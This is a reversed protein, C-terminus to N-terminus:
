LDYSIQRVAEIADDFFSRKQELIRTLRELDRKVTEKGALATLAKIKPEFEKVLVALTAARQLADFMNDSVSTFGYYRDPVSEAELALRLTPFPGWMRENLAELSLM